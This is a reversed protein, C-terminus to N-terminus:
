FRHFLLIIGLFKLQAYARNNYTKYGLYTVINISTFFLYFLYLLIEKKRDQQFM